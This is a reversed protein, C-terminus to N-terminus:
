ANKKAEADQTVISETEQAAASEDSVLYGVIPYKTSYKAHWQLHTDKQSETLNALDCTVMDPDTSSTALGHTANKGAFVHYPGGPGYFEKASTVDFVTIKTSFPDKVALYIPQDQEGNSKSLEAETVAREAAPQRDSDNMNQNDTPISKRM